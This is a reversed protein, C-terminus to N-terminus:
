VVKFGMLFVVACFPRILAYRVVNMMVISKAVIVINVEGLLVFGAVICGM